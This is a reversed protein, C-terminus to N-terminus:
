PGAASVRGRLRRYVSGIRRAQTMSAKVVAQRESVPEAEWPVGAAIAGAGGVLTELAGAAGAGVVGAVTGLAVGVALAADAPM